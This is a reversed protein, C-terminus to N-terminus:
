PSPLSALPELHLRGSDGPRQANGQGGRLGEPALHGGPCVGGGGPPPGPPAWPPSGGPPPRPGQPPGWPPTFISKAWARTGNTSMLNKAMKPWFLPNKPRLIYLKTYITHIPTHTHLIVLFVFQPTRPVGLIYYIIYIYTMNARPPILGVSM